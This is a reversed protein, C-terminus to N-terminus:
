QIKEDSKERMDTVMFCNIIMQFRYKGETQDMNISFQEIKAASEQRMADAMGIIDDLAGSGQLSISAIVVLEDGAPADIKTSDPKLHFRQILEMVKEELQSNTMNSIFYERLEEETQDPVYGSYERELGSQWDIEQELEQCKIKIPYCIKAYGLYSIVSLAAIYIFCKERKTFIKM